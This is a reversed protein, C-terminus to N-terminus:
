RLQTDAFHCVAAYVYSGLGVRWEEYTDKYGTPLVYNLALSKFAERDPTWFQLCFEYHERVAAQMQDSEAPVGADLADAMKQTIATFQATYDRTQEATYSANYYDGAIINNPDVVWRYCPDFSVTLVHRVRRDVPTGPAPCM